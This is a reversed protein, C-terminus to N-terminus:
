VAQVGGRLTVILAVLPGDLRHHRRLRPDHVQRSNRSPEIYRLSCSEECLKSPAVSSVLRQKNQVQRKKGPDPTHEELWVLVVLLHPLVVPHEALAPYLEGGLFNGLENRFIEVVFGDTPLPPTFGVVLQPVDLIEWPKINDFPNYFVLICPIVERTQAM